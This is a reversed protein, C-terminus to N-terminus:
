LDYHALRRQLTVAMAALSALSGAVLALEVRLMIGPQGLATLVSVVVLFGVVGVLWGLPVLRHGALAIVGQVLALAVMYLGSSASLLAMDLHGIQYAAGFLHSVVWPGLLASGAVAVAAVAAVGFVLRLLGHRFEALQGRAAQAALAPLLAAQVAQFFFLPIRAMLLGNLFTGAAAQDANGALVKVALPGVNVLFQGLVSGAVLFGVAHSIEAWHAPPGPRMLGRGLSLGVGVGVLCPLGVILGYAGAVHIGVAALAGCALVRVLGEASILAAYAGFAGSGALLGRVVFYALYALMALVFGVLLLQDGDFLRSVLPGRAAVAAMAVVVAVVGGAATARLVVSRGGLGQARRASVARGVEQELPLFIGPAALFVLTWLVSVPAYRVPGLARAAIALFGYSTLGSVLLGAAVPLTGRPLLDLVASRRAAWATPAPSTLVRGIM